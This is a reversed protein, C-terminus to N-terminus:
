NMEVKEFHGNPLALCVDCADLDGAKRNNKTLIEMSCKTCSFEGFKFKHFEEDREVIINIKDTM